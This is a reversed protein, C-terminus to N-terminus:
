HALALRRTLFAEFVPLDKWDIAVDMERGGPDPRTFGDDTVSIGMRRVELLERSFALYVAVTDFLISSAGPDSQGRLWMHYQEIVARMLPDSSARVAAYNRGTLRVRGCTDLPTITIPWPATLAQRCAPIDNLVNYEAIIGPAGEPGHAISGHMGVFKARRAIAPERRLAHGVNTLPGICILTPPQPSHMITDIVAAVGDTHVGGRYRALDCDAAWAAYPMEFTGGPVGVAVPVDDRGAIALM